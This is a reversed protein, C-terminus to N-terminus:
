LSISRGQVKKMVYMEVALFVPSEDKVHMYEFYRFNHNMLYELLLVLVQVHLSAIMTM